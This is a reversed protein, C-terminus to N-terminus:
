DSVTTTPVNVSHSTIYADLQSQLYICRRGIKCYPFKHKHSVVDVALLAESVGLYKAAQGRTMREDSNHVTNMETEM